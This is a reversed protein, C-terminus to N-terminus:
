QWWEMAALLYTIIMPSILLLALYPNLESLKNYILILEGGIVLIIGSVIGAKIPLSLKAGVFLGITAGLAVAIDLAIIITKYMTSNQFNEPNILVSMITGVVGKDVIGALHFFLITFTIFLVMNTVKSM